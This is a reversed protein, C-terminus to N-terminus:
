RHMSPHLSSYERTLLEEKGDEMLGDKALNRTLTKSGEQLASDALRAVKRQLYATLTPPSYRYVTIEPTIAPSPPTLVRREAPASM